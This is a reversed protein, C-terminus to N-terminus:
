KSLQELYGPVNLGMRYAVIKGDSTEEALTEFGLRKYFGVAGANDASVGVAVGDVEARGLAEVFTNVLQRGLGQGQAAPLLDIHFEAPFEEVDLHLREKPNAGRALLNLDSPGWSQDPSFNATYEPLYQSQWWEVLDPVSPVGIIYGVAKGQGPEVQSEDAGLDEVVWAFQPAYDVYPYAYVAPLLQDSVFQGTADGGLDGTRVCIDGIDDRDSEKYQRIGLKRTGLAM